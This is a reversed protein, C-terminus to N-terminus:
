DGTAEPQLQSLLKEGQRLAYDTKTNQGSAGDAYYEELEQMLPDLTDVVRSALVDIDYHSSGKLLLCCVSCVHKVARKRKGTIKVTIESWDIPPTKEVGDLSAQCLDCTYTIITDKM